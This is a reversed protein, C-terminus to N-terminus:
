TIPQPAETRLWRGERADKMYIRIRKQGDHSLEDKQDRLYTELVDAGRVPDIHLLNEALFVIDNEREVKELLNKTWQLAEDDYHAIYSLISSATIKGDLEHTDGFAIVAPKIEPPMKCLASIARDCVVAQWHENEIIDFLLPVAETVQWHGFLEVAHIPAVGNGLSGEVYLEKHDLITYCFAIVEERQDSLRKAVHKVNFSPSFLMWAARHLPHSKDKIAQRWIPQETM